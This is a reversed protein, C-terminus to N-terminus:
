DKTTDILREPIVPEFVLKGEWKTGKAATCFRLLRKVGEAESKTLVHSM